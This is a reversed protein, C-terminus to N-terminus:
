SPNTAVETISAAAKEREATSWPRSSEAIALMEKISDARGIRGDADVALIHRLLHDLGAKELQIAAVYLVNQFCHVLVRWVDTIDPRVQQGSQIVGRQRHGTGYLQSGITRLLEHADSCSTVIKFNREDQQLHKKLEVVRAKDKDNLYIHINKQTYTRAAERLAESVCVAISRVVLPWDTDHSEWGESSRESGGKWLFFPLIM